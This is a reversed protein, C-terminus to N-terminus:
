CSIFITDRSEDCIIMHGTPGQARNRQFVMHFFLGLATRTLDFPGPFVRVARSSFRERFSAFAAM